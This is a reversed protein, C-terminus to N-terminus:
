HRGNEAEAPAIFLEWRTDPVSSHGPAFLDSLDDSQISVSAVDDVPSNSNRSAYTLMMVLVLAATTALKWALSIVPEWFKAREEQAAYQEFRVSAMVNRTFAPGPDATRPSSRLWDNAQLADELAVNCRACIKLHESIARSAAWDVNGDLYDELAAEYKMCSGNIFGSNRDM